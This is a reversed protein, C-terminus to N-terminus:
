VFLLERPLRPMTDIGDYQVMPLLLCVPQVMLGPGMFWDASSIFSQLYDCLLRSEVNGCREWGLLKM